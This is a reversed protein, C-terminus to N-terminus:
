NNFWLWCCFSFFFQFNFQIRKHIRTSKDSSRLSKHTIEQVVLKLSSSSFWFRKTTLPNVLLNLVRTIYDLRERERDNVRKIKVWKQRAIQTLVTAVAAERSSIKPFRLMLTLLVKFPCWPLTSQKSQDGASLLCTTLEEWSPFIIMQSAKVVLLSCAMEMGVVHTM